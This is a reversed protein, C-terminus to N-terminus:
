DDIRVIAEFIQNLAVVSRANDPLEITPRGETDYQAILEDEPVCGALNLGAAKVAAKIAAPLEGNVRNIIVYDNKIGLKLERALDRIRKAAIIGRQTPDSVILLIDARRAVLRSIHEMGAENDMVIIRYNECLIEMFRSLLTNAHCYCGPGEPRGMVILDYGEAEILSEAVKYEMYVDRTMGPPVGDKLGERAEGLTTEVELGLVENLNANADADVALVPKIDNKLFFKILLGAVTTKGTGGKGAMAVIMTM